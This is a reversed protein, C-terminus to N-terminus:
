SVKDEEDGDSDDEDDAEMGEKWKINSGSIKTTGRGLIYLNEDSQIFTISYGLKLDKFDEVDLSDLYKFIFRQTKRALLDGLASSELVAHLLLAYLGLHLLPM